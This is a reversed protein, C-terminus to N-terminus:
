IKAIGPQNAGVKLDAARPAPKNGGGAAGPCM